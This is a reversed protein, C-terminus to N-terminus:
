LIPTPRVGDRTSARTSSRRTPTTDLHCRYAALKQAICIGGHALLSLGQSEDYVGVEKGHELAAHSDYAAALTGRLDTQNPYALDHLYPAARMMRDAHVSSDPEAHRPDYSLLAEIQLRQM